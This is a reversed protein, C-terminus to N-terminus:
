SVFIAVINGGVQISSVNVVNLFNNNFIKQGFTGYMNLFLGFHRYSLNTSFGALVRPLPSGVYFFSNGNDEYIATGTNKDMGLYKRTYFAQLPLGNKIVEASAGSVGGGQLWGTEITYPMDSVNNELFSANVSIDWNFNKEKIVVGSLLIELGSNRIKGDLNIWRTGGLPPSPQIPVAPYILHTTIKRFYDATINFRGELLSVDVGFNLQQDSQWQLDPNPNNALVIQGNPYFSYRAQASGSPFEQNGTIGWGARLKLLNMFDSKFFKEKSIVWAAALSPFYGYKHNAGFKSSGDARFTTTLMYKDQYNLIARGFFSQLETSPDSYSGIRRNATSSYQLYNTYDLGYDGFGQGPGNGALTYGKMEFNMYEYGLLATLNLKSSLDKHFNLTNTFQQTTQDNSNIGANGQGNSVLQNASNRSQGTGYYISYLFKYELWDTFKFSPSISALVTTLKSNTRWYETVALPSVPSNPQFFISGDDNRLQLTPNWTLAAYIVPNSGGEPFSADQVSQNAILGIDMGLKKSKLFKFQSSLDMGYKLYGSKRVFGNQNLYNGSVRYKAGENGGSVSLSYHQQWGNQFLEDQADVSQGHDFTPNAGYYPIAQIYENADLVKTKRLRNSFGASVGVSIRPEGMIGSKTNIIVVGYAARSGYIATASADKLVDISAIDTRTM